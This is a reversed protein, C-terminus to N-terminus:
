DDKKLCTSALAVQTVEVRAGCGQWDDRFGGTVTTIERKTVASSRLCTSFENFPNITMIM